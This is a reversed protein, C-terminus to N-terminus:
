PMEKSGSYLYNIFAPWHASNDQYFECQRYSSNSPIQFLPGWISLGYANNRGSYNKVIINDPSESMANMVSYAAAKVELDTINAYVLRAYDYIDMFNNDYFRKCQSYIPHFDDPVPYAKMKDSFNNLKAIFSNMKSLNIASLTANNNQYYNKYAAVINQSFQSATISPDSVCSAFATNYPYGEGPVTEESAVLFDSWARWEYAVELMQMLCADCAIIDFKKNITELATRVQTILMRSKTSDDYCIARFSNGKGQCARYDIGSGHDWLDLLYHNAPYDLIVQSTINQFVKYDGSDLNSGFDYYPSTVTYPDSDKEIFYLKSNKRPTDTFAVINVNETSGLEEMWNLNLNVYDSLNNHAAMFVFITWSKQNEDPDTPMNVCDFDPSTIETTSNVNVETAIKQTTYGTKHFTFIQTGAPVDNMFFTGDTDTEVTFNTEECTVSVGYLPIIPFRGGGGKVTGSVSGVGQGNGTKGSGGMGGSSGGGGCGTTILSVLLIASFFLVIIKVQNRPIM